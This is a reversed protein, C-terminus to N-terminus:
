LWEAGTMEVIEASFPSCRVPGIRSKFLVSFFNRREVWNLPASPSLIEIKGTGSQLGKLVQNFIRFELCLRIIWASIPMFDM